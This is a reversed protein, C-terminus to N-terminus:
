IWGAAEMLRLLTREPLVFFTNDKLVTAPINYKLAFIMDASQHTQFAQNQAKHLKQISLSFSLTKNEILKTEVLINDLLKGDGKAVGAGSGPISAAHLLDNIQDETKRSRKLRRKREAKTTKAATEQAARRRRNFREASGPKISDLVQDFLSEDNSSPPNSSSSV